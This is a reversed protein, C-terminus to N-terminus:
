FQQVLVYHSLVFVVQAGSVVGIPQGSSPQVAVQDGSSWTVAGTALSKMTNESPIYVIDASVAQVPELELIPPKTLLNGLNDYIATGSPEICSPCPDTVDLKYENVVIHTDDLWSVAWGPVATVLTGAQYINATATPSQEGSAAVLTGDPSLQIDPM